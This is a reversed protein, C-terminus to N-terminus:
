EVKPTVGQLPPMETSVAVGPECDLERRISDTMSELKLTYESEKM